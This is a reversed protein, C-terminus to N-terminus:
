VSTQGIFVAGHRQKRTTVPRRGDPPRRPATQPRRPRPPSVRLKRSQKRVLRGHQVFHVPCQNVASDAKHRLWDEYGQPSLRRSGRRSKAPAATAVTLHTHVRTPPAADRPERWRWARLWTKGRVWGGGPCTRARGACPCADQVSGKRSADRSGRAAAEPGCPCSWGSEAGGSVAGFAGRRSGRLRIAVRPDAPSHRPDRPASPRELGRPRLPASSPTLAAPLHAPSCVAGLPQPGGRPPPQPPLPPSASSSTLKPVPPGPLDCSQCLSRRRGRRLGKPDAPRHRLTSGPHVRAACPVTDQGLHCAPAKQAWPRTEGM